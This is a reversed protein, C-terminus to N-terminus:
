GRMFVCGLCAGVSRVWRLFAYLIPWGRMLMCGLSSGVPRVWRLFEYLISWGLGLLACGGYFHMCVSTLSMEVANKRCNLGGGRTLVGRRYLALPGGSGGSLAGVTFICLIKKGLKELSM